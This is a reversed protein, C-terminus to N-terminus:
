YLDAVVNLAVYQRSPVADAHDPFASNTSIKEGRARLQSNSTRNSESFRSTLESPTVGEGVLLLATVVPVEDPQVGLRSANWDCVLIREAAQTSCPRAAQWQTESSPVSTM